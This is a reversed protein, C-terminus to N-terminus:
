KLYIKKLIATLDDGHHVAHNCNECIPIVLNIIPSRVRQPIAHHETLLNERGCVWCIKTENIKEQLERRLIQLDLIEM